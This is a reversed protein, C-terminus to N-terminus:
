YNIIEDKMEENLTNASEMSIRMLQDVHKTTLRNRLKTLIRNMTSFDREVTATSIPAILFIEAALSLQPYIDKLMGDQVLKMCVERQTMLKGGQRQTLLYTRFTKWEYMISEDFDSSYHQQITRIEEDGYDKNNNMNQMDFIMFCNLLNLTSQEFRAQVNNIINEIFPLIKTKFVEDTTLQANSISLRSNRIGSSMLSLKKITEIIYIYDISSYDKLEELRLMTSSIFDQLQKFDASKTQICKSLVALTDLIPQLTHIIFATAENSLINYLGLAEASNQIDEFLTLRVSSRNIFNVLSKLTSLSKCIDPISDAASIVALQLAHARCHIFLIALNFLARFKAAVGNHIGSFVAAGDFAVFCTKTLDINKQQLDTVIYNFISEADKNKIHLLSVYTETPEGTTQDCYWICICLNGHRNIDTGEDSMISIVRAQQIKKLINKELIDNTAALKSSHDLRSILQLLPEYLTTHSLENKFLFYSCDLLDSLRDRNEQKQAENVTVIQNLVSGEQQRFKDNDLAILHYESRSHKMLRGNDGLAKKWNIFPISAFVGKTKQEMNRFLPTGPKWYNRCLRCFGGVNPQYYLWPFKQSYWPKYSRTEIKHNTSTSGLALESNNNVSQTNNTFTKSTASNIDISQIDSTTTNNNIPQIDSVSTTNATLHDPQSAIINSQTVNNENEVRNKKTLTNTENNEKLTIPNDLIHLVSQETTQNKIFNCLNVDKRATNNM